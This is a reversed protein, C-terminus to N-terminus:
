PYLPAIWFFYCREGKCRATTAVSFPAKPDGKIVTALKIYIYIYIYIYIHMVIYM